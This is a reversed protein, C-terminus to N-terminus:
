TGRVVGDYIINRKCLPCLKSDDVNLPNLTQLHPGLTDGVGIEKELLDNRRVIVDTRAQFEQKVDQLAGNKFTEIEQKAKARIRKVEDKCEQITRRIDEKLDEVQQLLQDRYAELDAVTQREHALEQQLQFERGLAASHEDQWRLVEERLTAEVVAAQDLVAELERKEADQHECELRTEVLIAETEQLQATIRRVEGRIKALEDRLEALQKAMVRKEEELEECQAQLEAKETSLTQILIRQGEATGETRKLDELAQEHAKVMKQWKKRFDDREKILNLKDETWRRQAEYFHETQESSKLELDQCRAQLSYNKMRLEELLHRKAQYSWADMINMSLEKNNKETLHAITRKTWEERDHQKTVLYDEFEHKLNTAEARTQELQAQLYDVRDHASEPVTTIFKIFLDSLKFDSVLWGHCRLFLECADNFRSHAKLIKSKLHEVLLLHDLREQWLPTGMILGDSPESGSGPLQALARLRQDAVQREKFEVTYARWAWPSLEDKVLALELNLAKFAVTPDNPGGADYANALHSTDEPAAATEGEEAKVEPEM